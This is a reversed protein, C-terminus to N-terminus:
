HRERGPAAAAPKGPPSGGAAPGAGASAVLASESEKAQTEQWVRYYRGFQADSGRVHLRLWPALRSGFWLRFLPSLGSAAFEKAAGDLDRLCAQHAELHPAAQGYGSQRMLAEEAAFHSAIGEALPPLAAGVASANGKEAAEVAEQMQRDLRQHAQDMEPVGVDLGANWPEM